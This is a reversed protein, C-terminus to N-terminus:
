RPSDQGSEDAGADEDANDAQRSAVQMVWHGIMRAHRDRLWTWGRRDAQAVLECRTIFQRSLVRAIKRHAKRAKRAASQLQRLAQPDEKAFEPDDELALEYAERYSSMMTAFPELTGELVPVVPLGTQKRLRQHWLGAAVSAVVALIGGVLALLPVAVRDLDLVAPLFFGVFFVVTAWQFVRGATFLRDAKRDLDADVASPPEPHYTWTTVDLRARPKNGAPANVTM